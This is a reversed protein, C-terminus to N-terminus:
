RPGRSARGRGAPSPPLDILDEPASGAMMLHQEAVHRVRILADAEGFVDVPRRGALGPSPSCLWRAIGAEDYTGDVVLFVVMAWLEDLADGRGVLRGLEM